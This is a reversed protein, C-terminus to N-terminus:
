QPRPVLRGDLIQAYIQNLQHAFVRQSFLQTARERGSRGFELVLAPNDVLRELHELASLHMGQPILFGDIGNRVLEPLAGSHYVIVPRGAAM